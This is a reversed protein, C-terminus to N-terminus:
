RNGTQKLVQNDKEGTYPDITQDALGKKLLYNETASHMGVATIKYKADGQLQLADAFSDYSILESGGTLASIDHVLSSMSANAFLGKLMSFILAQEKRQWYAGVLSAIAGQPDDGSLAEALDNTGWADGRMFLVAQDKNTGIKKVTLPNVDSLVQDNGTLDEFYPMQILNGGRQALIDFASNTNIIGSQVFASQENTKEIVYPLWVDPVIIDAIQTM